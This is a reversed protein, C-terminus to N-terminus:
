VKPLWVGTNGTGIYVTEGCDLVKVVWAPHGDRYAERAEKVTMEEGDWSVRTAFLADAQEPTRKHFRM